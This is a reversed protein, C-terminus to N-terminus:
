DGITVETVGDGLEVVEGVADLGLIHPLPLDPIVSGERLYHDLRNLGAALVKILVHGPKPKPTELDEYKLVEPDGFQRLVAAKM